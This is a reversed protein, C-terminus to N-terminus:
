KQFFTFNRRGNIRSKNVLFIKLSIFFEVFQVILLKQLFTTNNLINLAKYKAHKLIYKVESNELTQITKMYDISAKIAFTIAIKTM